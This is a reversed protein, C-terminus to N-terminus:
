SEDFLPLVDASIADIDREANIKRLVGRKEYLDCVPVTQEVFTRFRKKITEINDDSRGSTEARKLLREEMVTESCEFFMCYKEAVEIEDSPALVSAWVDYNEQNRPFGDILYGPKKDVLMADKLLGVTIESPVIKGATIIEEILQGKDSEPNKREARLLEGASLHGWGYTSVIKECQTGKGSGPGGLVFVIKPRYKTVEAM